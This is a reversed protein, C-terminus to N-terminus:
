EAAGWISVILSDLMYTYPKGLRSTGRQLVALCNCNGALILNKVTPQITRSFFYCFHLM